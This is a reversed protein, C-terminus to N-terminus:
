ILRSGSYNRTMKAVADRGFVCEGCPCNDMIQKMENVWIYHYNTDIPRYKTARRSNVAKLLQEFLNFATMTYTQLALFKAAEIIAEVYGRQENSYHRMTEDTKRVFRELCRDVLPILMDKRDKHDYSLKQFFKSLDTVIMYLLHPNTVNKIASRCFELSYDRGLLKSLGLLWLLDDEKMPSHKSQHAPPKLANLAKLGVRYAAKVYEVHKYTPMKRARSLENLDWHVPDNSHHCKRYKELTPTQWEPVTEDNKNISVQDKFPCFGSDCKSEERVLKTYLDYWARATAFLVSACVNGTEAVKEIEKCADEVMEFGQEKCQALVRQVANFGLIHAYRLSSKAMEAAIAKMAPDDSCGAKDAISAVEVPTLYGEWNDCLFKIAPLGIDLAQEHIFSARRNYTRQIWNPTIRNNLGLSYLAIRLSCLHLGRHITRNVRPRFLHTTMSNGGAKDYVTEALEFMVHASARTPEASTSPKKVPISAKSLDSITSSENSSQNSAVVDFDLFHKLILDLKDDDDKYHTLLSLALDCRQRRTGESLLPHDAEVFNVRASLANLAAQFGLMPDTPQRTHVIISCYPRQLTDGCQPNHENLHLYHEDIQFQPINNYPNCMMGRSCHDITQGRPNCSSCGHGKSLILAEFIYNGLILTTLADTNEIYYGEIFSQAKERLLQLESEGLTLGKLSSILEQKQNVLKVELPKTAAPSRKMEIGYLALRFVLNKNEPCGLLVNCLFSIKTLAESTVISMRNDLSGRKKRRRPLTCLQRLNPYKPYNLIENAVKTALIRAENLYGHAFLSETKAYLTELPDNLKIVNVKILDELSEEETSESLGDVPKEMFYVQLDREIRALALSVHNQGNQVYQNAINQVPPQQKPEIHGNLMQQHNNSMSDRSRDISLEGDNLHLNQFEDVLKISESVKLQVDRGVQDNLELPGNLDALTDDTSNITKSQEGTQSQAKARSRKKKRKATKAAKSKENSTNPELEKDIFLNKKRDWDDWSVLCGEMAPKFGSFLDLINRKNQKAVKSLYINNDMSDHRRLIELHWEFFKKYLKRLESASANPNMAALRWLQVIEDCFYSCSYQSTSQPNSKSTIHITSGSLLSVKTEFWWTMIKECRLVEQTMIDLLLFFNSDRRKMMEGVITILNWIGEPERGRVTRLLQSYETVSAPASMHLHQVDCYVTTQASCQRSLIKRIDVSLHTDDLCWRTQENITAGATPDPAAPNQNIIAEEGSLLEDLLKQAAPLIQQPLENILYQAFKQLQNKELRQLSESVPARLPVDHPRRIRQLCVAVAHQCWFTSASCSCSCSTIRRRDFTIAVRYSDQVESSDTITKVNASLHFGVQLMDCVCNMSIAEEAQGFVDANGNALCTYLKIDEEDQPFSWFAIGCQMQEPVPPDFHEVVGFPIHCAVKQTALETLSLIKGSKSCKIQDNIHKRYMLSSHGFNFLKPVRYHNVHVDIEDGDTSLSHSRSSDSASDSREVVM